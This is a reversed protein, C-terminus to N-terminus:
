IEEEVVFARKLKAELGTPIIYWKRCKTCWLSIRKSNNKLIHAELDRQDNPCVWGLQSPDDEEWAANCTTCILFRKEVLIVDKGSHCKPCIRKSINYRRVVM